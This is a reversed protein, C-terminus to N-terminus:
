QMGESLVDGLADLTASDGVRTLQGSAPRNWLWLDLDAAAGSITAVATANAALRFNADDIAAGSEPDTGTERGLQLVWRRDTDTAVLEVVRGDTPTFTVAPHERGYMVDIVEDVGDSALAARIASGGHDATLEADVRHILAEHAQRRAIYGATHLADDPTWMWRRTQPTLRSLSRQLMSSAEDFARLLAGRDGPREPHQLSGPDTVDQSVITGWFWQVEALHWLLDDTSWDPCTPVTTDGATAMVTRFRDSEDRIATLFDVSTM